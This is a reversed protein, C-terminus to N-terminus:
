EKKLFQSMMYGTIGKYTVKWWEGAEDLIAVKAHLPIINIVQAKKDPKFRMKCPKGGTVTAFKKVPKPVEEVKVPEEEQVAAPIEEVAPVEKAYTNPIGNVPEEKPYYAGYNKNKSM